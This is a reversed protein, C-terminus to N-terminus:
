FKWKFTRHRLTYMKKSGSNVLDGNKDYKEERWLMGCEGSFENFDHVVVVIGLDVITFATLGSNLTL